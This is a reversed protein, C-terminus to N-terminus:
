DRVSCKTCYPIPLRRKLMEAGCENCNLLIPVPLGLQKISLQYLQLRSLALTAATPALVGNENRWQRKHKHCLFYADLPNNYDHYTAMTYTEECGIAECSSRQIIGKRIALAIVEGCRTKFEKM